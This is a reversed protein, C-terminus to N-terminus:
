SYFHFRVQHDDSYFSHTLNSKSFLGNYFSHSFNDSEFRFLVIPVTHDVSKSDEINDERIVALYADPNNLGFNRVSYRELPNSRIDVVVVLLVTLSLFILTKRGYM